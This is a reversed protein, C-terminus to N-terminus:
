GTSRLRARALAVLGALLYALAVTLAAFKLLAFATAAQPARSAGHGDLVLLLGVDEVADCLAAVIPLVAIAAGFRAYSDWGRLRAADRVALIALSLFAGYAILYLFDVWLSLRAADQGAQGWEAMIQTARDTSGALEFAVIGPGGTDQMRLDLLALVLLLVATAIGLVWLGRRRNM